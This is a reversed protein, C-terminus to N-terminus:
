SMLKMVVNLTVLLCTPYCQVSPRLTVTFTLSHSLACASMNFPELQVPHSIFFFHKFLIFSSFSFFIKDTGSDTENFYCPALLPVPVRSMLKYTQSGWTYANSSYFCVATSDLSM